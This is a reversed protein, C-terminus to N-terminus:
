ALTNQHTVSLLLITKNNNVQFSTMKQSRGLYIILKLNSSVLM